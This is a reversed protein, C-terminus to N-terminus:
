FDILGEEWLEVLDDCDGRDKEIGGFGTSFGVCFDFSARWRNFPFSFRLNLVFGVMGGEVGDCVRNEERSGKREQRGKWGGGMAREFLSNNNQSFDARREQTFSVGQSVQRKEEQVISSLYILEGELGVVKRLPVRMEEALKYVKKPRGRGHVVFSATVIGKEVLGDMIMDCLWKKNGFVERLIEQRSVERRFQLYAIVEGEWEERTKGIWKVSDPVTFELERAYKWGKEIDERKNEGLLGVLFETVVEEPLELYKAWGVAPQIVHIYRYSSHKESLSIVARKWLEFNDLRNEQLKKLFAPSKIIRCEKRDGEKETPPRKSWFEETLNKGNFTYLRLEKQLGKVRRYLGFFAVRGKVDEVLEYSYLPFEEYFVPHNLRHVFTPDANLGKSEFFAYIIATLERARKLDKTGDLLYIYARFRGSKTRYVQYGSKLALRERLENWAPYVSEFPGDIDIVVTEFRYISSDKLLEYEKVLGNKTNSYRYEEWFSKPVYVPQPLILPYFGKEELDKLVNRLTTETRVPIVGVPAKIRPDYLQIIYCSQKNYGKSLKKARERGVKGRVRKEKEVRVRV